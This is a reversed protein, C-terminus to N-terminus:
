LKRKTQKKKEEKKAPITQKKVTALNEILESLDWYQKEKMKKEKGRKQRIEFEWM